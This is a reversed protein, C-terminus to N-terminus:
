WPRPRSRGTAASSSTAPSPSPSCPRCRQQGPRCRRTTDLLFDAALPPVGPVAPGPLPGPHVLVVARRRDLETFLEAQTPDGLYTDRSHALLILGDAGLEDLARDGHRSIWRRSRLRSGGRRCRCGARTPSRHAPEVVTVSM